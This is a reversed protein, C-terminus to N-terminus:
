SVPYVRAAVQPILELADASLQADEFKTIFPAPYEVDASCISPTQETQPALELASNAASGSEAKFNICCILGPLLFQEHNM